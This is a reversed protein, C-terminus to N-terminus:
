QIWSTNDDVYSLPHPDSPSTLSEGFTVLCDVVSHELLIMTLISVLRDPPLGWVTTAKVGEVSTLIPVLGLRPAPM